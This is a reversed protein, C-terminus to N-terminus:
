GGIKAAEKLLADYRISMNTVNLKKGSKTVIEYYPAVNAPRRVYITSLLDSLSSGKGKYRLIKELNGSADYSFLSTTLVQGTGDWDRATVIRFAGAINKLGLTQKQLVGPTTSSNLAIAINWQIVNGQADKTSTWDLTTTSPLVNKYYLLLANAVTAPVKRLTELDVTVESKTGDSKRVTYVALRGHYAVSLAAGIGGLDLKEGTKADMIFTTNFSYSDLGISVIQRGSPTTYADILRVPKPSTVDAGFIIKQNFRLKDTGQSADYIYVVYQGTGYPYSMQEVHIVLPTDTDIHLGNIGTTTVLKSTFGTVQLTDTVTYNDEMVTGSLFIAKNRILVANDTFNVSQLRGGTKATRATIQVRDAANAVRRIVTVGPGDLAYVVVPGGPFNDSSVDRITSISEGSERIASIVEQINGTRLDLLQLTDKTYNYCSWTPFNTCSQDSKTTVQFAYNQNSRAQSWRSYTLNSLNVIFVDQGRGRLVAVKEGSSLTAWDISALGYPIGIAIKTNPNDIRQVQAGSATSFVVHQGDPSVDRINFVQDGYSEISATTLLQTQGSQLDMLQLRLLYTNQTDVRFAYDSNSTARTWGAPIAPPEPTFTNTMVNLLFKQGNEFTLKATNTDIFQASVLVSGNTPFLLTSATKTLDQIPVNYVANSDSAAIAYEGTSNIAKIGGFGHTSLRQYAIKGTAREYIAVSNNGKRTSGFILKDGQPTSMTGDKSLIPEGVTARLKSIDLVVGNGNSVGLPYVNYIFTNILVLDNVFTYNTVIGQITSKGLSEGTTYAIQEPQVMSKQAISYVHVDGTDYISGTDLKDQRKVNLLAIRGEPDVDMADVTQSSAVTIILDQSGTSKNKLFIKKQSGDDVIVFSLNSNNPAQVTSSPPEAPFTSLDVTKTGMDTTVIANGNQFTVSQFVGDIRQFKGLDNISQVYVASLGYGPAAYYFVIAAKGDPSVDQISVHARYDTATGVLTEKQTILNLVKAYLTPGSSEIRRAFNPNSATRTWGDPVPLLPATPIRNIELTGTLDAGEVIFYILRVKTYDIGQISSVPISWVQEMDSRIGTLHISAKRDKDDVLELKVRDTTGRLGFRLEKLGSLDGTEISTSETSFDDYTFGAGVWQANGTSTQYRFTMGRNERIVTYSAGSPSVTTIDLSPTEPLRTIDATTLTTSPNIPSTAAPEIDFNIALDGTQNEGEVIFYMLRVKALNIGQLSSMPITWFQEKDSRIGSLYVTARKQQDDQIEFKVRDPNGKLGVVLESLGNLDATEWVSSTFNDFTLGGAAWGGTKTEYHFLIDGDGNLGSATAIASNPAVSTPGPLFQQYLGNSFRTQPLKTVNATMAPPILPSSLGTEADYNEVDGSKYTVEITKETGPRFRVGTLQDENPTRLAITHLLEGTQANKVELVQKGACGSSSATCYTLFGHVLYHNNPSADPLSYSEYHPTPSIYGARAVKVFSTLLKGQSNFIDYYIYTDGTGSADREAVFFNPNSRTPVAGAPPATPEAKEVVIKLTKNSSGGDGYVDNQSVAQIELKYNEPKADAPIKWTLVGNSFSYQDKPVPHWTGPTGTPGSDDTYSFDVIRLSTKDERDQDSATIQLSVTDGQKYKEELGAVTVVPEHRNIAELLVQSLPQSGVNITKKKGGVALIEYYAPKGAPRRVTVTAMLNNTNGPIGFLKVQNLTGNANYSFANRVGFFDNKQLDRVEAIRWGNAINRIKFLQHTIDNNPAPPQNLAVKVNWGIVKGTSDKVTTVKEFAADKPLSGGYFNNIPKEAAPPVSPSPSTATSLTTQQSLFETSTTQTQTQTSTPTSTQTTASVTATPTSTAPNLLPDAAFVPNSFSLIQSCLFILAVVSHIRFFPSLSKKM